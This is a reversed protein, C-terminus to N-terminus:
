SGYSTNDEVCWSGNQSDQNVTVGNIVTPPGDGALNHGGCRRYWSGYKKPSANLNRNQDVFLNGFIDAYKIAGSYGSDLRTCMTYFSFETKTPSNANARGVDGISVYYPITLPAPSSWGGWVENGINPGLTFTYRWQVMPTLGSACSGSYNDIRARADLQNGNRVVYSQGWGARILSQITRQFYRSVVGSFTSDANDVTRRCYARVDIRYLVGETSTAMAGSSTATGMDTWGSQWGSSNAFNYQYRMVSGSACSSASWTWTMTNAASTTDGPSVNLTTPATVPPLPISISGDASDASSPGGVSGLVCRARADFYYTTGGTGTFVKTSPIDRSWDAPWATSALASASTAYRIQYQVGGTSCTSGTATITITQDQRTASVTPVSAQPLSGDDIRDGAVIARSKITVTNGTGEEVYSLTFDGCPTSSCATGQYKIKSTSAAGATIAAMTKDAAQPFLLTDSSPINLTTRVQDVPRDSISTISPYEGNDQYYKELSEAIASASAKRSSDRADRQVSASIVGVIGALIGIVAVVVAVEVLSFGHKKKDHSRQNGRKHTHYGKM